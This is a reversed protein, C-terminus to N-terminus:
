RPEEQREIEAALTALAQETLRAGHRVEEALEHLLAVSAAVAYRRDAVTPPLARREGNVVGQTRYKTGRVAASALHVIRVANM